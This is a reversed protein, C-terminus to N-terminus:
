DKSQEDPPQYVKHGDKEEQRLQKVTEQAKATDGAILQQELDMETKLVDNMQKRYETVYKEKVDAPQTAAGKPTIGKCAITHFQLDNVAALSADLKKPDAISKNLTRIAKNMAEMESHLDGPKAAPKKPADGEKPADEAARAFHSAAFLLTACLAAVFLPRPM